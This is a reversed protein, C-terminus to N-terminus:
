SAPRHRGLGRMGCRTRRHRRAYPKPVHGGHRDRSPTLRRLRDARRARRVRGRPGLRDGLPRGRPRRRLRVARGLSAGGTRGRGQCRGARGRRLRRGGPPSSVVTHGNGKARALGGGLDLRSEPPVPRPIAMARFPSWRSPGVFTRDSTAAHVCGQVPAGGTCARLRVLVLPRAPTGRRTGEGQGGPLARDVGPSVSSRPRAVSGASGIWRFSLLWFMLFGGRSAHDRPPKRMDGGPGEPGGVGDTRRPRAACM